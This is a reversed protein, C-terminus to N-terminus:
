TETGSLGISQGAGILVLEGTSLNYDDLGYSLSTDAQELLVFAYCGLLKRGRPIGRPLSALEFAELSENRCPLGLHDRCDAVQQLTIIEEM